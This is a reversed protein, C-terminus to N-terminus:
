KLLVMKRTQTFKGAVLQYFYVGSAVRQGADNTGDWSVQYRDARQHENVLVRVARGGVDYITLRVDGDNAIAYRVATTPNFPNPVNQDLGNSLRYTVSYPGYEAGPGDESVEQLKYWYTRNAFVTEDRYEYRAGTVSGRSAIMEPSVADYRGSEQESRVIRYGQVESEFSTEWRVVASGDEVAVDFSKLRVAIPGSIEFAVTASGVEQGQIFLVVRLRAESFNGTPTTWVFEGTDAIHAAITQYTQGGDPSFQIDVADFTAEPPSTWQIALPSGAAIIQGADPNTIVPAYFVPESCDVAVSELSPTVAPDSTALDARYQLYRSTVGLMTGSSPVSSFPSWTGDPTATDGTRVLLSLSTGAPTGASWTMADWNVSHGADFVRSTFSGSSAYPTMRIWDVSLTAGGVSLDSIAPRMTGPVSQPESHVLTGDIYFDVSSANWDIRYRHPSGLYGAGLSIDTNNSSWVRAQLTTGSSGSSFIVFPTINFVDTPSTDNGAGFGVHQYPAAAFTAVFELSRGPGYGSVPETNFRAGDVVVRGGSLTVTGGGSWPFGDWEGAPPLVTFDAAREPDLIVEGDGANAVRTGSGPSGAAFDAETVDQACPADFTTFSLPSGPPSPETASNNAGDVSTARYYYTTNPTLGALLLSHSTVPTGSSVHLSLSGTTTGYDVRSDAPEDTTWEILATGDPNPTATLNSIVPGTTDVTYSAVYDGADAPFGAYTIGKITETDFAVPALDRTLSTLQGVAAALPLLARLNRAGDAVTVTFSLENGSWAIGDFTSGNRGDLWRLMQYASVVPVGRSVASAVIADSGSHPAYDFHMNATFAGYYGEPGLAKDLLADATYPYSQGSEDTMQTAAQYCDVMSGDLRAFRMPMGSGTFMGPRDAVWAPPWYYYDTDLRIGHAVSIDAQTSWDSWAICHTRNTSPAPIGPYAGAFTGLQTTFDSELSAPTWNNCGTNVHLAVEFGQNHYSLAQANSFGGSVYLYGTARVCEWDDVSCGGPSQAIYADFRPAMGADGHDDGTMVVVAKHGSPFYWFRPLPKRHLNGTLILNALLRQQEDAQPIAVKDLNVWDPQPDGAAAGYFLDDSRIPSVGDREQGSWAPNGQRTYVVSRALDYAFAIARGGNTGFLNLTVAPYSTPTVASSYLTAISVASGPNYRDASGHFQITEAVLGTGPGSATDILLYGDSLTGGAPTLGLLSALQADPRMAILTGGADVWDTLMTVQSGTLGMEGLIVVDYDAIISPTVLSIDRATFANLGEARLIEAFYRTFPNTATSIVLVPGGPGEDPPPPPPTTTTFSWSFDAALANGAVDKIRPDAAGGQLTVTYTTSYALLSTPNLTATRSPGDYSVSATVLALSGDRLEFTTEDVSAPDLAENFTATVGAAASVGSAGNGPTIGTVLPPSTDPGSETDFVVDVWYNGSNYTDTPFASTASYLYVANSGDVGNQLAHLPPNDAGQGAFYAADFSYHGAPMFVSAVYTTNATISIPAAFTAEQWGSASEGSFTVSGLPGGANTWLNGIHTGTNAAAKYFRIGTITGDVDARFRVGVELSTGDNADATGPVTSGSWIMCPCDAAPADEITVTIEPGATELNGWDDAARARISASGSAGPTWAYTWNETGNAPAWTAGADVSVEVVGVGGAADLATGSIMVPSGGPVTGGDVPFGITTSPPTVDGTAAVVVIGSQPTEPQAGMEALLNVTAQQMDASPTSAGRDHNGDLGWSWQVTGAGFVLAGSTHRYLSLHHTKGNLVTRSLTVRGAPYFENYQHFDWEYGLTSGALALTAGSGLGEVATNRWFRLHKYDDPVEITGTSGDWSIQGSLANEPHCGDAPPSFSCGDRWLGTWENVLPDCKGGCNNEGLTGEKYCVLTRHPTGSGDVSDEWRVKWYIENGSLFALHVGADRAAQVNARHAASWYEDHGVSLFVRHELIEAGRRDSDTDTFYSVDYGNAELWRILPYAANFVWDEPTGARSNYPRNFSVKHARAVPPSSASGTYLSNGGYSNYAQWTTESVQFLLDSGGDDDRVVFVIHSARGDEPDERVLKAIYVGSTAGSPVTWSASASWTGCDLLGTAPDSICPPQSQPLTASPEVTTVLRAGMGGYYGLRYIDVRYDTADTLIKFTITEGRNVSVDTAFGQISPDGAGSIDWESAPNGALQNEIVIENQAFTVTAFLAVTSVLAM